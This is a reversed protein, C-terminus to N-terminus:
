ADVGKRKSESADLLFADALYTSNEQTVIVPIVGSGSEESWKQIRDCVDFFEEWTVPVEEIGM